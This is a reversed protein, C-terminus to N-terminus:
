ARCRWRRSDSGSPIAQRLSAKRSPKEEKPTSLEYPNGALEGGNIELDMFTTASFEDTLTYTHYGTAIKGTFIVKYLGDDAKEVATSWNILQEQAFGSICFLVASLVSIITKKM